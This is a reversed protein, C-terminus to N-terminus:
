FSRRVLRHLPPNIGGDKKRERFKERRNRRAGTRNRRASQAEANDKEWKKEAGKYPGCESAPSKRWSVEGLFL